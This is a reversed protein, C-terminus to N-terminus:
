LFSHPIYLSNFFGPINLYKDSVEPLMLIRHQVTVAIILTNCWLSKSIPNGSNLKKYCRSKIWAVLLMKM